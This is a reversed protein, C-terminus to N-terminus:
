VKVANCGGGLCDGEAETWVLFTQNLENCDFLDKDFEKCKSACSSTSNWNWHKFRGFLVLSHCQLLRKQKETLNDYFREVM